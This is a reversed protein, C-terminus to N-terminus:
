NFMRLLFQTIQRATEGEPAKLWQGRDFEAHVQTEEDTPSYVRLKWVRGGNVGPECPAKSHRVVFKIKYGEVTIYGEDWM